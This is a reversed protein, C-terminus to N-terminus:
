GYFSLGHTPFDFPMAPGAVPTVKVRPWLYSHHAELGHSNVITDLTSAPQAQFAVVVKPANSTLEIQTTAKGSTKITAAPTATAPQFIKNM